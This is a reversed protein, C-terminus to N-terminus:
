SRYSSLAAEKTKLKVFDLDENFLNDLHHIDLGRFKCHCEAKATMSGGYNFIM